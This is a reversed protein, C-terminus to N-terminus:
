FKWTTQVYFQHADPRAAPGQNIADGYFFWFYGAQINFNPSVTMTGVFDIEQGIDSTAASPIPAGVINWINGSSNAKSFFHYSAAATFKKHPKVSFTLGTDQLNEGSFNDILGWYAHALPYMTYFTNIDGSTPDNDGSGWYYFGAIGPSWMVNNFTYGAMLSAMGASVDRNAPNLGFKDHGFQYAGELEWNWTGVLTSCDKVPRSGALRIGLTHREGDMRNFTGTGADFSPNRENFYLWYLDLTNNELGNYTSYLGSIWRDEDASDPKNTNFGSGGAAANVSKMMFADVNWDGSSYLFKHGEFNRFTNAWALPSLLRQGGYKLFQRGYRYKLSTGCQEYLTLEAYYRLFDWRNVDIPVPAYAADGEQWASADIGEVLAGVRNYQLKLHPNFRWLSYEANGGPPRLRNDENMFRHRLEGGVSYKLDGAQQNKLGSFISDTGAVSDFLGQVDIEESLARHDDAVFTVAALVCLWIHRASLYVDSDKRRQSVCVRGGSGGQELLWVSYFAALLIRNGAVYRHRSVLLLRGDAPLRMLQQKLYVCVNAGCQLRDRLDQRIPVVPSHCDATCTHLDRLQNLVGSEM